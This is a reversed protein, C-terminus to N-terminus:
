ISPGHEGIVVPNLFVGIQFLEPVFGYLTKLSINVIHPLWKTKAGPACVSILHIMEM